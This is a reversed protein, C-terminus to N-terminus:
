DVVITGSMGGHEPSGHVQCYYNYTGRETFTAQFQEEPELFGSDFQLLWTGPDATVTHAEGLEDTNRWVVTTGRAVHVEGPMVQYDNLDITVTRSPRHGSLWSVGDGAWEFAVGFPGGFYTALERLNHPNTTTAVSKQRPTVAHFKAYFYQAAAARRTCPCLDFVRGLLIHGAFHLHDGRDLAWAAQARADSSGNGAMSFDAYFLLAATIVFLATLAALLAILPKIL